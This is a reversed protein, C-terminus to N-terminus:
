GRPTGLAAPVQREGFAALAHLAGLSERDPVAAFFDDAVAEVVATAKVALPRGSRTVDLM